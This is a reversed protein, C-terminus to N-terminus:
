VINYQSRAGVSINLLHMLVFCIIGALAETKNNSAVARFCVTFATSFNSVRQLEGGTIYFALFQEKGLHASVCLHCNDICGTYGYEGLPLSCCRIVKRSM